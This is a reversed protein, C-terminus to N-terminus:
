NRVVHHFWRRGSLLVSSEPRRQGQASDCSLAARSIM